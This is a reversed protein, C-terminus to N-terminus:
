LLRELLDDQEATLEAIREATERRQRRLRELDRLAEHRERDALPTQAVVARSTAEDAVAEQFAVHEDLVALAERLHRVEDRVQALRKELNGHLRV